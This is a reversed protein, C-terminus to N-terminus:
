PTVITSALEFGDKAPNAQTLVLVDGSAVTPYVFEYTGAPSETVSAIVVPTNTTQNTLVFDSVGWGEVALLGNAYGYDLTLKAVFGTLAIASNEAFVDLLGVADKLDATTSFLRLDEDKLLTSYIFNISTKQITSNTPKVLLTWFTGEELRLPYLETLDSSIEGVLRNSADVVFVSFDGCKGQSIKGLYVSDTKVSQGSFTRVGDDIVYAIGEIDETQPEAREDTVAVLPRSPYWRKSKDTDNLRENLYDNDVVTGTPISNRLGNSDFTNVFFLKKTIDQIPECSAKGTNGFGINCECVAM